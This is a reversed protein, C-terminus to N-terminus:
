PNDGKCRFADETDMWLSKYGDMNEAPIALDTYYKQLWPFFDKWEDKKPNDKLFEQIEKFTSNILTQAPDDDRHKAFIDAIQKADSSSGIYLVKKLEAYIDKGIKSDPCVEIPADSDVIEVVRHSDSDAKSLVVLYKGSSVAQFLFDGNELKFGSVQNFSPGYVHVRGDGVETVQVLDKERYVKDEIEQGFVSTALVFWCLLSRM